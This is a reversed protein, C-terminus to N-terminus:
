GLTIRMILRVHRQVADIERAQGIEIEFILGRTAAHAAHVGPRREVAVGTSHATVARQFDGLAVDEGNRNETREGTQDGRDNGARTVAQRVLRVGTEGDSIADKVGVIEFHRSFEEAHNAVAVHM